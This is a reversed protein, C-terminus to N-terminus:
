VHHAPSIVTVLISRSRGDRDDLIVRQVKRWMGWKFVKNSSEDYNWADVRIDEM